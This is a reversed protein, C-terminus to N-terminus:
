RTEIHEDWDRHKRVYAAIFSCVPVIRKGSAAADDLVHRALKSGLGQGEYEDEIVTHTFVVQDPTLTYNAFGAVKDGDRLEYRNKEPVAVIAFDDQEDANDM